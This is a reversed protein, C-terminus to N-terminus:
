RRSQTNWKFHSWARGRGVQKSVTSITKFKLTSYNQNPEGFKV